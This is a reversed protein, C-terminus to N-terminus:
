LSATTSRMATAVDSWTRGSFTPGGKILQQCFCDTREQVSTSPAKYTAWRGNTRRDPSEPITEFEGGLRREFDNRTLTKLMKVISKQTM